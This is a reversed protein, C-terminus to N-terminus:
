IQQKRTREAKQSDYDNYIDMEPSDWDDMGAGLALRFAAAQEPTIGRQELEGAEKIAFTVVAPTEDPVGDPAEPFEIRGNRFIGHATTQM